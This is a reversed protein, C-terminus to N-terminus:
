IRFESDDKIRSIIINCDAQILGPLNYIATKLFHELDESSPLMAHGHLRSNGTIQYLKHVYPNKKLLDCAENFKDASIKLDMAITTNTGFREPNLVITYKEIIKNNVLSELRAKIATRSLGTAKSLDVVSIRSNESLLHIIQMDIDDLSILSQNM